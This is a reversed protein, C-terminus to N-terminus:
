KGWNYLLISFDVANVKGDKNIDVSPNSFPSKTKWFYLLISFDISNVKGDRNFDAKNGAKVQGFIGFKSFHNVTATLIKTYTDLTTPLVEWKKTKENYWYVKLTNEILGNIQANNYKFTLTIPQSFQTQNNSSKIDFVMNAAELLGPNVPVVPKTPNNEVIPTVTIVSPTSITNQSVAVTLTGGLVTTAKVTGAQNSDFKTSGVTAVTVPVAYIDSNTNTSVPAGSSGSGGGGGGGGGSNGGTNTPATATFSRYSISSETGFYAIVKFYYTGANPVTATLTTNFDQGANIYKAAVADFVNHGSGCPDNLDSVVCWQYQYENGSLGENTITINASINPTVTNSINNIIVQAPTTVVTWYDNGPLTKGTEVNASFVTEWTGAPANGPTTYSYSYTGTAVRTMAVNNAIINRSPDYVVVTPLSLSDTLTGNYITNVTALYNGGAVVSGFDSTTVTWPSASSLTLSTLTRTASNWIDTALNGASSLTRTSYSWVNAPISAVSAVLSSLTSGLSSSAALVNANTTNINTNATALTAGLSSSANSLQTSLAAIDTWTITDTKTKIGTVNTWDITDTKTKIGTVDGWAITDTKAKILGNSTVLGTVDSWAISDTKTKIASINSTGNETILTAANAKVTTVDSWNITDTKAKVALTIAALSTSALDTHANISSIASAVQSDTHSNVATTGANISAALSSSANLVNAATALSGSTLSADTLNRTAYSWVDSATLTSGVSTLTRTSNAWVDAVLTGFTTLSRSGSSWVALPITSALSTSATLVTADTHNNITSIGTTFQSDTHSNIATIASVVQSNTNTNVNTTETTIASGLSSSAALVNANTTNINTNATALTAGLSSSANSLQTSLAAIDAWAITDTKTKIGTVDSWNITDTKTKIGTVDVWAITDTKAKIQGSTTVLGTIDSWAISDTKTKIASINGTGIETILTAVNAKVTTVDSWNITDTKTKVALTIAALSTSALDTHANISSIASAVQSNTNTNVNATETTIASALSSSASTVDSQVALSGSNLGAGTLTRTTASWVDTALTGFTTLSRTGASWVATAIDSVLTGFSTLTRGTYNWVLSPLSSALSSSADVVTAAISSSANGVVINTNANVVSAISSTASSNWVSNAIDTTSASVYGITFTKDLNALDGGAVSGCTMTAPWIGQATLTTTSYYHWGTSLATMPVSSAVISNSPNYITITCPSTTAVLNDDYVFEGIIITDGPAYKNTAAHVHALGILGFFICASICLFIGCTNKYVNRIM